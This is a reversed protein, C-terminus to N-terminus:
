REASVVFDNLLADPPQGPHGASIGARYLVPYPVVVKEAVKCQESSSRNLLTPKLVSVVKIMSPIYINLVVVLMLDNATTFDHYATLLPCAQWM